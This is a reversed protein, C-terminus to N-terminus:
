GQGEGMVNRFSEDAGEAEYFAVLFDNLYSFVSATTHRIIM